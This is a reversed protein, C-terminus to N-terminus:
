PPPTAKKAWTPPKTKPSSVIWRTLCRLGSCGRYQHVPLLEVPVHPRREVQQRRLQCPRELVDGDHDLVLIGLVGVEEAEVVADRKWLAPRAIRAMQGVPDRDVLQGELLLKGVGLLEDVLDPDRDEVLERVVEPDVLVAEGLETVLLRSDPIAPIEDANESVHGDEVLDM